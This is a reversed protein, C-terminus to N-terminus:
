DRVFFFSETDVFQLLVKRRAGASNGKAGEALRVESERIYYSVVIMM